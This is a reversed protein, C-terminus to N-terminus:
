NQSATLMRRWYTFEKEWGKKVSETILRQTVTYDLHGPEIFKFGSSRMIKTFRQSSPALHAKLLATKMQQVLAPDVSTRYFMPPFPIRLSGCAIVRLNKVAGPNTMRMFSYGVDTELAADAHGLSVGIFGGLIKSTAKIGSFFGAPNRGVMKRLEYFTPEFNNVILTRGKLDQIKKFSANKHVYMCHAFSPKQSITIAALPKIGPRMVDSTAYGFDLLKKDADRWLDDGVRYYVLKVPRGISKGIYQLAENFVVKLQADLFGSLGLKIGVRIEKQASVATRPVMLLLMAIVFLPSGRSMMAMKSLKTM